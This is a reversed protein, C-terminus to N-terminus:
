HLSINGTGSLKFYFSGSTSGIPTALLQGSSNISFNFSPWSGGNGEILGDKEIIKVNTGLVTKSVLLIYTASNSNAVLFPSNRAEIVITGGFVDSNGFTDKLDLLEVDAAYIDIPGIDKSYQVLTNIGNNTGVTKYIFNNNDNILNAGNGDIVVSNIGNRIPDDSDSCNKVVVSAKGNLTTKIYLFNSFGDSSLANKLAFCSELSLNEVDNIINHVVPVPSTVYFGAQRNSECGCGTLKVSKINSISWGRRNGDSACSNFSSYVMENILWGDLGNSGAFCGSAHTSTHFGRFEFGHHANHSCFVDRMNILFSREFVIGSKAAFSSRVNTLEIHNSADNNVAGSTGSSIFRFIINHDTSNRVSFNRLKVFTGDNIIIGSGQNNFNLITSHMGEGELTISTLLEAQSTSIIIQNKLIYNGKPIFIVGGTSSGNQTISNIANQFAQSWDGNIVGGYIPDTVNIGYNM